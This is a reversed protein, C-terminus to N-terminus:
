TRRKDYVLIDDDVLEFAKKIGAPKESDLKVRRSKRLIQIQTAQCVLEFMQLAEELSWPGRLRAAFNEAGM